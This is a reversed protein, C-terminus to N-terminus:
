RAQTGPYDDENWYRRKPDLLDNGATHNLHGGRKWKRMFAADFIMPDRGQNSLRIASSDLIEYENLMHILDVV